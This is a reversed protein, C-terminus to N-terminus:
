ERKSPVIAPAEDLFRLLEQRTIFTRSGVRKLTLKGGNSYRYLSAPSFGTARAAERVTYALKELVLENDSM